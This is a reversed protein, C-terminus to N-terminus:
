ENYPWLPNPLNGSRKCKPCDVQEEEDATLITGVYCTIWSDPDSYREYPAVYDCPIHKTVLGEGVFKDGKIDLDVKGDGRWLAVNREDLLEKPPPKNGVWSIGVYPGYYDDQCMIKHLVM